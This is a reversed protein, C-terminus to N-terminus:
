YLFKRKIVAIENFEIRISVLKGKSKTISSNDDKISIDIFVTFLDTSTLSLLQFTEIM